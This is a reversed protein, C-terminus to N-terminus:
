LMGHERFSFYSQRGEAEQGVIVHDILRLEMLQAAEEIRRTFRRDAESPSPDGSPHNHTLAFGYSGTLLVPRLVGRIGAQCENLSGLSVIHWGKVVLRTNFCLVVLLEKDPEFTADAQIVDKFFQHLSSPTDASIKTGFATGPVQIPRSDRIIFKM